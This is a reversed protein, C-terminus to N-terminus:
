RAVNSRNERNGNKIVTLNLVRKLLAAVLERSANEQGTISMKIKRPAYEFVTVSVALAVMSPKNNAIELLGCGM